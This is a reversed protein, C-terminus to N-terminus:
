YVFIKKIVPMILVILVAGSLLMIFLGFIRPWLGHSFMRIGFWNQTLTYPNEKRLFMIAGTLFFGVMAFLLSLIGFGLLTDSAYRQYLFAWMIFLGFWILQFWM